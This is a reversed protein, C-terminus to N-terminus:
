RVNGSSRSALHSGVLALSMPAVGPGDRASQRVLRDGQRTRGGKISMHEDVALWLLRRNDAVLVTDGMRTLSYSHLANRSNGLLNTRSEGKGLTIKRLVTEMLALSSPYFPMARSSTSATDDTMKAETGWHSQVTSDRFVAHEIWREPDREVILVSDIAGDHGSWAQISDVEDRRTIVSRTRREDIDFREVRLTDGRRLVVFEGTSVTSKWGRACAHASLVGGVAALVVIGSLLRLTFPSVLQAVKQM